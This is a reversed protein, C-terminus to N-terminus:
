PQAQVLISSPKYETGEVIKQVMQFSLFELNNSPFDMSTLSRKWLALYLILMHNNAPLTNLPSLGKSKRTDHSPLKLQSVQFELGMTEQNGEGWCPIMFNLTSPAESLFGLDVPIPPTRLFLLPTDENTKMFDTPTLSEFSASSRLILLAKVM